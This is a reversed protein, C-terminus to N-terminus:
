ATREAARDLHANRERPRARAVWRWLLLPWVVVVGPVLLLRFTWPSNSAVPDITSVGRVLFPVAFLTGLVVWGKLVAAVIAVVQPIEQV